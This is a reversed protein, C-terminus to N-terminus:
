EVQDLRIPLEADADTQTSSDTRLDAKVESSSAGAPSISQLRKQLVEICNSMRAIKNSLKKSEEVKDSLQEKLTGVMSSEIINSSTEKEMGRAQSSNQKLGKIETSLREIEKKLNTVNEDRDSLRSEMGSLKRKLSEIESQQKMIESAQVSIKDHNAKDSLASSKEQESKLFNLLRIMEQNNELDAILKRNTERQENMMKEMSFIKDRKGNESTQLDSIQALHQEVILELSEIKIKQGSIKDESTKNNGNLDDIQSTLDQKELELQKSHSEFVNKTNESESLLKSCYNKLEVIEKSRIENENQLSVM